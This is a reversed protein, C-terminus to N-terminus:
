TFFATYCHIYACLAASAHIAQTNRIWQDAHILTKLHQELHPESSVAREMLDPAFLEKSARQLDSLRINGIDTGYHQQMAVSAIICYYNLRGRESIRLIGKQGGNIFVCVDHEREMSASTYEAPTMDKVREIARLVEQKSIM